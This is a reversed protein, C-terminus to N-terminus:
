GPEWSYMSCILDSSSYFRSEFKYKSQPMVQEGYAIIICVYISGQFNFSFYASSNRKQCIYHNYSLVREGSGWKRSRSIVGSHSSQDRLPTITCSSIRLLQIFMETRFALSYSHNNMRIIYQPHQLSYRSSPSYLYSLYHPAGYNITQLNIPDLPIIHSLYTLMTIFKQVLQAVTVKKFPSQEM